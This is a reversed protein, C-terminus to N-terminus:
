KEGEIINVSNLNKHIYVYMNLNIESTKRKMWPM